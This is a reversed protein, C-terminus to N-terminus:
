KYLRRKNAFAEFSDIEKVPNGAAIVDGLMKQFLQDRELIAKAM